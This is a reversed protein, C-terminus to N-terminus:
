NKARAVGTALGAVFMGGGEVGRVVGADVQHCFAVADAEGELHGADRRPINQPQVAGADDAAAVVRQLARRVDVLAQKLAAGHHRPGLGLGHAGDDLLLAAAPPLLRNRALM